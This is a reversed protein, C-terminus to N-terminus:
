PTELEVIPQRKGCREITEERVDAGPPGRESFQSRREPAPNCVTIRSRTVQEYRQSVELLTRISRRPLNAPWSALPTQRLVSNVDRRERYFQVPLAAGIKFDQRVIFLRRCLEPLRFRELGDRPDRQVAFKCCRGGTADVKSGCAAAAVSAPSQPSCYRGVYAKSRVFGDGAKCKCTSEGLQPRRGVEISQDFGKRIRVEPPEQAEDDLTVTM